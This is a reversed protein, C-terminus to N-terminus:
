SLKVIIDSDSTASDISKSLTYALYKAGQPITCQYDSGSDLTSNTVSQIIKKSSDLFLNGNGETTKFVKFQANSFGAVDILSTVIAGNGVFADSLDQGDHTGDAKLFAYTDTSSDYAEAIALTKLAAKNYEAAGQEFTATYTMASSGVTITRTANKDGDSWQVFKYGSAAVASIQVQQGRDYNGSGSVTGGGAPSAKVTITIKGEVPDVKGVAVESFDAGKIVLIKGM